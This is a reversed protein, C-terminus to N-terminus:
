VEYIIGLRQWLQEMTRLARETRDPDRQALEALLANVVAMGSVLSPFTSTGESPVAILHRAVAALPSSEMDTLVCTTVSREDAIRVAEVIEGPLRWFNIALLVDGAGLYQLTGALHTGGLRQMTVDYGLQRGVHALHIGPGAFSGSGIVVTKRAGAIAAAVEQVASHQLTGLVTRLNTLDRRLSAGTPNPIRPHEDLLQASSLSALYRSRLERRLESWGSFGLQRAVRVVTAANVGARQAIDATAAYAALEPQTILVDLVRRSRTGLAGSLRATLWAELTTM